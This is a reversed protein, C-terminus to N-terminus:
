VAGHPESARALLAALERTQAYFLRFPTVSAAMPGKAVLSIGVFREGSRSTMAYVKVKQSHLAGGGLSLEGLEREISGGLLAGTLSGSRFFRWVFLLAIAAVGAVVVYDFSVSYGRHRELTRRWAEKISAV